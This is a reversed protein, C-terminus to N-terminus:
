HTMFDILHTPVLMKQCPISYLPQFHGSDHRVPGCVSVCPAGSPPTFHTEGEPDHDQPEAFMLWAM